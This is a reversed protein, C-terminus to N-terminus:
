RVERRRADGATSSGTARRSSGELAGKAAAFEEDTLVGRSSVLGARLTLHEASIRPSPPQYRPRMCRRSPHRLRSSIDARIPVSGRSNPGFEASARHCPRRSGRQHRPQPRRHTRRHLAPAERRAAPLAQHRHVHDRPTAGLMTAPAADLYEAHGHCNSILPPPHGANAYVLEGGAPDLVAYWVSALADPQMQCLATNTRRLVDPPSPNDIAYGRLLSRVQGM